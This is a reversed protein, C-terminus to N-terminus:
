WVTTDRTDGQPYLEHFKIAEVAVIAATGLIESESASRSLQAVPRTIGLLLQGYVHGAGCHRMLRMTIDAADLNPFILVDADGKISGHPLRNAAIEPLMAIDVQIEGEFVADLMHQRASERALAVAAAMKRSSASGMSGKTSHSLFAVKPATGLLQRALVASEIAFSALQSPNPDPHMTCDALVVIRQRGDPTIRAMLTAGFPDPVGLQPKILHFIPRAIAAAPMTNGVVMGDAQGYQVMMAAFYHPNSLTNRADRVEIGRFKEIREFRECFLPLDSSKAPDIIHIFAGSLGLESIRAQLKARDGLLVPLVAENRVMEAAVRLVRDDDAEPFVVRKPHRKLKEILGAIFFDATSIGPDM